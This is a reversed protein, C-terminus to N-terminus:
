GLRRAKGCAAVPAGRTTHRDAPPAEPAEEQELRKRAGAITFEEEYLLKKIKLVLEIDDRSYIRQGSRNRSDPAVHGRRRRTQGARRARRSHPTVSNTRNCCNEYHRRNPRSRKSRM